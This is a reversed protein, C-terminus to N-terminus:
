LPFFAFDSFEILYATVGPAGIASTTGVGEVVDVSFVESLAEVGNEMRSGIESPWFKPSRPQRTQKSSNLPTVFQEGPGLTDQFTLLPKVITNLSESWPSVKQNVVPLYATDSSSNAPDATIVWPGTGTFSLIRKKVFLKNVNDWLGVTQGVQPQSLGTYVGTDSALTFSTPSTAASVRIAQAGTARYQPWTTADQWGKADDVFRVKTVVAISQALLQVAFYQDDSPMAGVVEALATNLQAVTPRRSAGSKTPTTTFTIGMTGPGFCAPYTFARQVGLNASQHIVEQVAADNGSAPPNRRREQIRILYAEDSEKPAGGILGNGSGQDAVTAFDAIGPRPATWELVAGPPLNVGAGTDISQVLLTSGDLVFKTEAALYKNGTNKFTLEDGFAVTGGGASAEIEIYGLAPKEGSRKIGLREGVRDLRTGTAADENIGDAILRADAYIPQLTDAIVRADIDPQTGQSTDAGPLRLLYDRKYRRVLEDRDFTALEGPLDDLAM